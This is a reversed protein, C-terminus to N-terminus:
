KQYCFKITIIFVLNDNVCFEPCYRKGWYVIGWKIKEMMIRIAMLIKSPDNEDNKADIITYM